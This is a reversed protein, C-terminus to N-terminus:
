INLNYGHGLKRKGIFCSVLTIAMNGDIGM